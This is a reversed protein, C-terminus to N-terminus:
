FAPFVVRECLPLCRHTHTHTHTPPHTPPFLPPPPPPRSHDRLLLVRSNVCWGGTRGGPEKGRHRQTDERIDLGMCCRPRPALRPDKIHVSLTERQIQIEAREPKIGKAMVSLTVKTPSQYWQHRYKSNPAPAAPPASAQPPEAASAPAPAPAPAPASAKPPEAAEPPPVAKPPASAAPPPAAAPPAQPPPAASGAAEEEEEMLEADCKRIWIQYRGPNDALAMGALFAAKATEYEELWFCAVGQLLALYAHSRCLTLHFWLAVSPAPPHISSDAHLCWLSRRPPPPPPPM